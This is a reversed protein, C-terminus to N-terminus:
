EPLSGTPTRRLTTKGHACAPRSATSCIPAPGTAVPLGRILAPRRAVLCPLKSTFAPEIGLAACNRMRSRPGPRACLLWIKRRVATARSYKGAVATKSFSAGHRARRNTSPPGSICCLFWSVETCPTCKMGCDCSSRCPPRCRRPMVPRCAAIRRPESGAYIYRGGDYVMGDCFGYDQKHRSETMDPMDTGDAVPDPRLQDTDAKRALGHPYWVFRDEDPHYKCLRIPCTGTVEDWARTEAYTSWLWGDRDVVANHPQAFMIANGVYALVRSQGTALDHRVIFEAPYTFGYLIGRAWDAAISQVYLHPFPIGLVDYRDAKWDYRVLKGGPAEHQKDADHLLSTAFYFCDDQPNLLLTRHIKSDYADTWRKTELGTFTETRPDFRYLLDGDIANLGCYVNGDGPNFTVADFSIWGHVWKPDAALDNYHWRGAINEKWGSLRVDRLRHSRIEPANTM